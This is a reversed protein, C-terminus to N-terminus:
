SDRQLVTVVGATALHVFDGGGVVEDVLRVVDPRSRPCAVFAVLGGRVVWQRFHEFDAKVNAYDPLGDLRIDRALYIAM